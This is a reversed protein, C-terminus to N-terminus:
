HLSKNSLHHRSLSGALTTLPVPKVLVGNFGLETYRAVQEPMANATYAYVSQKGGSQRYMKLFTEGDMVPM